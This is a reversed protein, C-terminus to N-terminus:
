SCPARPSDGLGVGGPQDGGGAGDADDDRGGDRHQDEAEDAIDRDRVQKQGAHDGADDEAESKM